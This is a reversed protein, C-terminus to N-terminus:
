QCEAALVNIREGQWVIALKGDLRKAVFIVQRGLWSIWTGTKM